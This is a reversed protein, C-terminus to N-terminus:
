HKQIKEDKNLEPVCHNASKRFPQVTKKEAVELLLVAPVRVSTQFILINPIEFTIKGASPRNESFQAGKIKTM